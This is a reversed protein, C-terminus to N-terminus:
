KQPSLFDTKIEFVRKKFKTKAATDTSKQGDSQSLFYKFRYKDTKQVEWIELSTKPWM